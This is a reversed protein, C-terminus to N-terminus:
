AEPPGHPPEVAARLDKYHLFLRMPNTPSPVMGLREYFARASEDIADVVFFRVPVHGSMVAWTRWLADAFLSRGLGRGQFRQDIALRVLLIAPISSPMGRSIRKPAEQSQVNLHALTYYAVVETSKTTVVYTRSLMATQKALAHVKLFEDLTPRGCAFHDLEHEDSLLAPASLDTM